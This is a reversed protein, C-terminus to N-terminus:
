GSGDGSGRIYEKTVENWDEKDICYGLSTLLPLIVEDLLDVWTIGSKIEVTHKIDKEEIIIKM